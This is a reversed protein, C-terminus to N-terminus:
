NFEKPKNVTDSYDDVTKNKKGNFGAKRKGRNNVIFFVALVAVALVLIILGPNM